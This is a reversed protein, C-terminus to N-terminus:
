KAGRPKVGGGGNCKKRGRGKGPAPSSPLVPDDEVSDLEMEHVLLPAVVGGLLGNPSPGPDTVTVPDDEALALPSFQNKLLGNPVAAPSSIFGIDGLDEGAPLPCEELSPKVRQVGGDQSVVLDIAAGDCIKLTSLAPVHRRPSTITGGLVLVGM